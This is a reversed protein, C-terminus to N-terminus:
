RLQVNVIHADVPIQLLGDPREVFLLQFFIELLHFIVRGLKTGGIEVAGVVACREEDEVVQDAEFGEAGKTCWM